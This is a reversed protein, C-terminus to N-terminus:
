LYKHAGSISQYKHFYIVEIEIDIKNDVCFLVILITWDDLLLKTHKGFNLAVEHGDAKM